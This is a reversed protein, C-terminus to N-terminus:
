RKAWAFWNLWIYIGGKRPGLSERWTKIRGATFRIGAVGLIPVPTETMFWAPM